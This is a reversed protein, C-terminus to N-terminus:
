KFSAVAESLIVGLLGFNLRLMGLAKCGGRRRPGFLPSPTRPSCQREAFGPWGSGDPSDAHVGLSQLEGFSLEAANSAGLM